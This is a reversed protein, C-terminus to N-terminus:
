MDNCITDTDSRISAPVERDQVRLIAQRRCKWPAPDRERLGSPVEGFLCPQTQTLERLDLLVADKVYRSM